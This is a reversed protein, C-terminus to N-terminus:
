RRKKKEPAKYGWSKPNVTGYGFDIKIVSGPGYKDYYFDFLDVRKRGRCVDIYSNGNVKYYILYANTPLSKDRIQETTAKEYILECGYDSPLYKKEERKEAMQKQAITRM